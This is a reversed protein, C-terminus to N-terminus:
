NTPAPLGPSLKAITQPRLPIQIVFESGQGPTSNCTLQGGHKDTIIQYSISMGMGTGQGVAKTTFFPDFIQAQIAKPIGTGNDALRIIARDDQCETTITITPILPNKLLRMWAEELADIANTLINMFVQNLQGAFCEVAPLNGYRKIVQIEPRDPKAKLRSQLIMLTSDIGDHIDVQKVEAEDLRSFLRLSKVIERIRETGMKMSNLLKPLDECLFPLDLADIQTAIAAPAQPYTQQYLLILDLLDQAYESVHSVNGHIFNVPNNIEHAIGAVLQGLSSMKESQVMQAQTRQLEQLTQQLEQSKDRSEAYLEAQGMAIALQDAVAKILEIEGETWHRVRHHELCIMVGVRNSRTRIPLVVEATCHIKELFERHISEPYLSTDAVQLIDQEWLMAESVGVFAAPHSGLASGIEQTRRSEEVLVWMPDDLTSDYWAFICNDIDLLERTSELTTAIVTDLDLSHRIQNSLQNLVTQREAYDQLAAQNIKRDHIDRLIGQFAVVQGTEDKIPSISVAVWVWYGQAHRHRFEVGSRKEGTEAVQQNAAMCISLDDPHVLPAFSQGLWEAPEFGLVTQFVPSIYTLKGDLGWAAIVDYADEVLRRFKAESDALASEAQNQQAELRVRDSIDLATVLLQEVPNGLPNVTLLWFTQQGNHCFSEEFSLPQESRCCDRYRDRYLGAAAEPLAEGLTKGLLQEVPIPSTRAMTPNFANFRFEKGQELVDLIFIGYNVGEWLNQLLQLPNIGPLANSLTFSRPALDLM